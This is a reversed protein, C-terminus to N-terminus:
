NVRQCHLKVITYLKAAETLASAMIRAREEENEISQAMSRIRNRIVWYSAASIGSGGIVGQLNDAIHNLRQAAQNIQAAAENMRIANAQFCAM